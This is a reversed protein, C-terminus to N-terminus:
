AAQAYEHILGGLRDRRLVQISAGEVPSDPRGAPPDQRLTRHPRHTNYHGAYEGLVLQLHREGAILM